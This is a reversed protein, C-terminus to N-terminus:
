RSLSFRSSSRERCTIFCLLSRVNVSISFIFLFSVACIWASLFSIALSLSTLLISVRDEEERDGGGTEEKQEQRGERKRKNRREM